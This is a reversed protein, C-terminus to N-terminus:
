RLRGFKMEKAQLDWDKGRSVPCEQTVQGQHHLGAEEQRPLVDYVLSIHSQAHEEEEM